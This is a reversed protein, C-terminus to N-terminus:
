RETQAYLELRHRLEREIVGPALPIGPVRSWCDVDVLTQARLLWALQAYRRSDENTHAAELDDSYNIEVTMVKRFRAFIQRLGPEMPSLFRLFVSSVKHGEERLRDVAEEIAGRTSGWGVVLLEGEQEGHVTPPKLSRQLTALKKSRAEMGRQNTESEYAVHSQEDHALGTLVYKGGLQGPIPRASLGTVPDWDYPAVGDVWDSQDFPPALWDETVVPRPIPQQGTAFNADTLVIVPTRFTEALKRATVMFDFCEEHTSPAMVIKPADGPEGFLASLLDGQEVRTPLGTSPGGRQVNVIVLPVEAMVALALFETKLAMGPGSTVTMPTKGAYSCGIAFGIASIEDEAQHVFGGVRPLAAALYHSVSTAPTIPYMSCVEIGAAMAGLAVAQNGNVVIMPKERPESIVQFRLPLNEEAWSHGARVLAMNSEILAEGKRAFKKALEGRIKEIDRGYIACVVGLAWMNKGRRPDSILKLTEAELPLQYVQYKRQEFDELAAAFEQRVSQRPDTAWKSELLIITGERLAGVDIRSYLVQENFAVVLDAADGANRIESRGIRIRNGSAGARSRRPPEVEAPIIEVTWAGNGMKASVAGFIQGVTQAGEGSDSVFEVIHQKVDVPVVVDSAPTAGAEKM